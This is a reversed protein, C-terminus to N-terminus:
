KKREQPLLYPETALGASLAAIYAKREEEAPFVRCIQDMRIRGVGARNRFIGYDFPRVKKRGRLKRKKM